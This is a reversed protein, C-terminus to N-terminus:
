RGGRPQVGRARRSGARLQRPRALAPVGQGVDLDECDKATEVLLGAHAPAAMAMTAAAAAALAVLTRKISGM